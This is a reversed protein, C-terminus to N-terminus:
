KKQFELVLNNIKFIHQTIFLYQQMRNDRSIVLRLPLFCITFSTDSIMM